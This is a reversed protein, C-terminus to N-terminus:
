ESQNEQQKRRHQEILILKRLFRLQDAFYRSKEPFELSLRELIEYAKDYRRTKIFIKALSESLLDQSGAAERPKRSPAPAAPPTVPAPAAPEPVPPMEAPTSATPPVPPPVPASAGEAASNEAEDEAEMTLAYDPVPNFILRELLADEEDSRSGYSSLFTDIASETTPTEKEPAPPYFGEVSGEEGRALRGAAAPDCSNLALRALLRKQEEGEPMPLGAEASRRLMLADPLTFYPYRARLERAFAGDVAEGGLLSELKRQPDRSDNNENNM